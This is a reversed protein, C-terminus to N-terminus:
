PRHRGYWRSFLTLLRLVSIHLVIAAITGILGLGQYLFYAYLALPVLVLALAGLVALPMLVVLQFLSWLVIWVDRIRSSEAETDPLNDDSM